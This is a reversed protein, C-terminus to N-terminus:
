IGLKESTYLQLECLGLPGLTPWPLYFLLSGVDECLPNHHPWSPPTPLDLFSGVDQSISPLSGRALGVVHLGCFGPAAFARLWCLSTWLRVLLGLCSIHSASGRRGALGWGQPALLLLISPLPYSLIM